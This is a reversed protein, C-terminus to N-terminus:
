AIQASKNYRGTHQLFVDNLSAQTGSSSIADKLSAPTGTLVIQGQDMIAIRDSLADAEEMYHTTLFITTGLDRLKRVEDWLQERSHPDLGTTPEDLFLIKPRNIMGIAIDLRRKQGGSYTAPRRDAISELGLAALLDSARAAAERKSMGYLRAQLILDEWATADKDAGGSQSVYGIVERIKEPQQYLDYSCISVEGADPQLLTTLMRLTTTKGAGNPGLFGFIEGSFVELDVGNVAPITEKGTKYSKQLGSTYLIQSM